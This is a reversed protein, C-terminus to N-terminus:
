NFKVIETAKNLLGDSTKFSIVKAPIGAISVNSDFSKNVVANAGIAVNDGININGFIKVGPGIYVNNGIVPTKSTKGAATGINVGVHLRCNEGIISDKNVVITGRHAISLGPGFVNIPIEFGLKLSLKTYKYQLYKIYIKNKKCNNYYELKRMLRQFKWIYDTFSPYNKERGLAVKDCELFYLYDLKSEIM